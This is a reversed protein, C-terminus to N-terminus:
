SAGSLALFVFDAHGLGFCALGAVSLNLNLFLEVAGEGCM